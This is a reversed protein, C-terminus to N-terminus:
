HLAGDPVLACWVRLGPGPAAADAAGHDAGHDAGWDASLADVLGLGRGSVVLRPTGRDGDDGTGRVAAVLAAPDVPRTGYDRVGVVVREGHVALDVDVTTGTHVVANTVLESVCLLTTDVLDDDVGWEQLRARVFRRAAGPAVPEGPLRVRATRLDGPAAGPDGAHAPPAAADDAPGPEAAARLRELTAAVRAALREVAPQDDPAPARDLFLALAGSRREPDLPAAIIASVGFGRQREVFAAPLGLGRLEGGVTRGTRVARTLPVDDYADIECWAPAGPTGDADPLLTDSLCLLLRRGGGEAVALGARVARPRATLVRLAATAVGDVDVAADLGDTM